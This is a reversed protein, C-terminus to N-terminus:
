AAIPRWNLNAQHAQRDIVAGKVGEGRRLATDHL